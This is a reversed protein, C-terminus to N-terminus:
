QVMKEYLAAIQKRRQRSSMERALDTGMQEMLPHDKSQKIMFKNPPSYEFQVRQWRKEVTGRRRMQVNSLWNNSRFYRQIFGRAELEKRQAGYMGKRLYKCLYWAAGEQNYIPRVDVVWSDKTVAFWATSIQCEM